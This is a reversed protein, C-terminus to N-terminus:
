SSRSLYVGSLILGLGLLYFLNIPEGDVIGWGLAVVPVMYSVTSAFVADTMQVLQYFFISALVTGFISLIAIYGLSAWATDVTQLTHIVDTSILYGLAPLGVFIFSAASLTLPNMDNFYSQVTNSSIAYCMTALVCFLAYFPNGTVAGQQAFFVLLAAGLLGVLIGITKTWVYPRKFLLIGLLLTFLPTLSSLLGALSSSIQTQANAFLFAPLLNGTIGILLLGKWKSWDIKHIRWVFTPLFALASLTVRLCALQPATFSMLGRKILIYSSGWTLALLLLLIWAVVQPSLQYKQTLTCLNNKLSSAVIITRLKDGKQYYKQINLIKHFNMKEIM